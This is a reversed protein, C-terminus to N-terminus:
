AREPWRLRKATATTPRWPRHGTMEARRAPHLTLPVNMHGHYTRIRLPHQRIAPPTCHVMSNQICPFPFRSPPAEAAAGGAM